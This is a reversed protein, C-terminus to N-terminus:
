EIVIIVVVSQVRVLIDNTWAVAIVVQSRVRRMSGAKEMLLVRGLSGDWFIVQTVAMGVRKVSFSHSRSHITSIGSPADFILKPGSLGVSTGCTICRIELQRPVWEVPETTGGTWEGVPANDAEVTAKRPSMAITILQGKEIDFQARYHFLKWSDLLDTYADFWGEIQRSISIDIPPRNIDYGSASSTSISARRTRRPNKERVYLRPALSGMIAATQVDGTNDVYSQLVRIADENIGTIYLGDLEGHLIAEDVKEKLFQSVESDEFFRLAIGIRETLPIPVDQVTERWDHTMFWTLLMRGYPDDLRAALTQCRDRWQSLAATEESRQLAVGALLLASLLRHSEDKSRGLIDISKETKGIFMAWCAARGGGNHEREWKSIETELEGDSYNWGVLSLGLQRQMPKKTSKPVTVTDMRSSTNRKNLWEVAAVYNGFKRDLIARPATASLASATGRRGRPVAAQWQSPIKPPEMQLRPLPELGEWIPLIGRLTFDFGHIHTLADEAQLIKNSTHFWMWIQSLSESGPDGAVLESNFKASGLGYGQTVRKRIIASIDQTLAREAAQKESVRTTRPRSRSQNKISKSEGNTKAPQIADSNSVTATADDSHLPIPSPRPTSISSGPGPKKEFPVRMASAPSFRRSTGDRTKLNDIVKNEAQPDEERPLDRNHTTPSQDGQNVNIDWPETYPDDGFGSHTRYVKYGRGVSAALEGRPSWTHQPPDRIVSLEIDGSRSVAVIHPPSNPAASKPIFDFSAIPKGFIKTRSTGALIPSHDDRTNQHRDDSPTTNPEPWNSRGDWANVPRSDISESYNDQFMEQGATTDGNVLNWLRVYSGDRTTTGIVNRRTNCFEVGTIRGVAPAQPIASTVLADFDVGADEEQFMMVPQTHRRRDWVHVAADDLSAILNGDMPDCCIGRVAKTQAENVAKNPVRLDFYRILRNNVGAVVEWSSNPQFVCSNIGEAQCWQGIPVNTDQLVKQYAVKGRSGLRHLDQANNRAAITSSSSISRPHPNLGSRAMRSSTGITNPLPNTLRDFHDDVASAEFSPASQELDWIVLGSETRFKDLGNALLNPNLRCFALSTCPRRNRTSISLTVPAQQAALSTASTPIAHDLRCIDVAGSHLGIALLDNYVSHPSWAFCRMTSLDSRLGSNRVEGKVEHNWEYMKLENGGGVVFRNSGNPDWLVVRASGLSPSQEM